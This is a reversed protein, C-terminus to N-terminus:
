NVGRETQYRRCYALLPARLTGEENEGGDGQLMSLVPWLRRPRQHPGPAPCSQSAVALTLTLIVCLNEGVSLTRLQTAHLVPLPPM